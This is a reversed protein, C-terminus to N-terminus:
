YRGTDRRETEVVIGYSCGREWGRSGGDREIRGDRGRVGYRRVRGRVRRDGM